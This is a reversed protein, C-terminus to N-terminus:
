SAPQTTPHRCVSTAATVTKDCAQRDDQATFTHGLVPVVGLHRFFEGSVYLGEAYHAEGGSNLNFRTASWALVGTFAQQQARIQEWQGYTLRASRTSSWGSRYAESPFDISVLEKPKQVPLTRLRIVDILQFIASNAGIGLALSLVAVLGFGPNQRLQRVGYRM